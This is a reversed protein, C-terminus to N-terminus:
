TTAYQLAPGRLSVELESYMEIMWQTIGHTTNCSPFSNSGHIGYSSYLTVIRIGLSCSVIPLVVMKNFFLLKLM